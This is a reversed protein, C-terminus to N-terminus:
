SQTAALAADLAADLAQRETSLTKLQSAPVTELNGLERNEKDRMARANQWDYTSGIITRGLLLVLLAAVVTIIYAKHQQWLDTLDM